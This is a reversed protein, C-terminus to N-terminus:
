KFNVLVVHLITLKFCDTIEVFLLYLLIFNFKNVDISLNISIILM